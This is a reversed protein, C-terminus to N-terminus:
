GGAEVALIFPTMQAFLSKTFTRGSLVGTAQSIVLGPGIRFDGNQDTSTFFVKGNDIQIVEKSQNPDARGVQPLSGYNTGAGVYEFTYSLASMYSRQYFNLSAGDPFLLPNRVQDELSIIHYTGARSFYSLGSTVMNYNSGKTLDLILRDIIIGIDRKCKYQQSTTMTYVNQNISYQFVEAIIFDKNVTLQTVANSAQPPPAGTKRTVPAVEVGNTLINILEDFRDNVFPIAAAGTPYDKNQIVTNGSSAIITGVGIVSAVVSAMYTIAGIEASQHNNGPLLSSGVEVPNEAVVSSLVNYYANGTFLLTFFNPNNIEGGGSTLGINLTISKFNIDTVVTGTAAYPVGVSDVYSGFQDRVWVTQGIAIGETEIDTIKISGTTLTALNPIATLFGPLGQDNVYDVEAFTGAGTTDVLIKKPPIVEMVLGIHPRYASDPIFALMQANQPWYGNPYYQGNTTQNGSQALTPYAPNQVTGQFELKGKGKAVLCYDGFNANSNTISAIGGNDVEVATSCFITFVSVLQAYGNNVIHIGRGGQNVQTFADYVFSNVPSRDSVVNGDVLSGGMAGTPDPMRQSWDKAEQSTFEAGLKPFVSTQGFYLTANSAPGVTPKDLGITFNNAIQVISTIKPALKVDNNSIGTAAFLGSGVYQQPAVSPGNEIINAIIDFTRTVGEIAFQGGDFYTNIIQKTGNGPSPTVAINQIINLSIAKARNIADITQPIEGDVYNRAGVWYNLGCEIAKTTGGLILDQTVADVIYGTDRKCKSRDYDFAFFQNVYAITEAQIFKRNAEIIKAAVVANTSTTRVISIPTKAGAVSPGNEIINTIVDIKGTAASITPINTTILESDFVQEETKQYPTVPLGKVINPIISRIRNYAAITGTTQGYIASSGSNYGYYYVGAQISQRNGGYLLDFSVSDVIYGVDRFCKTKDYLFGSTKQNEVWSLVEQQMYVKNAQLINFAQKVDINYSADVDNPVIKDTVGSVGNTLIDLVVDFKSAIADSEALTASPLSTIQTGTSYRPNSTDNIVLKRALSKAYAISNTTTTIENGIQGTYNNQNWYQLGTFTSQSTSDFLLDQVISDVILGSDRYCKDQNYTFQRFFQNNVRAVVEEKIFERNAQLINYAKEKNADTSKELGIPVKNYLLSSPGNQILSIIDGIYNSLDIGELGSASPLSVNQSVKTQAPVIEINQVLNNILNSLTNYAYVTQPIEGRIASAAGDFSYYYVGSQIAQRNGGHLLDFSVSDIMYGVDRRCLETNYQFGLTKNQEVFAIAEAQIYSKNAQLLNYANVTSVVTSPTGNNPIIRDTVGITGNIIIDLILNFESAVVSAEVESGQTYTTDQIEAFQYRVGTTINQVVEKALDRVFKIANTTTSLENAIQGTYESQNWYQLGTFVSQSHDETPYLMDLGISDVILGLDRKCKETSYNISSYKSDIYATAENQIFTRNSQLLVEASVAYKDPGSSPYSTPAVDPGNVIIDTVININNTFGQSALSGGSLNKNFVQPATVAGYTTASTNTIIKQTLTNIYNIAAVTQQEQGAILSIVGNYYAKGSEISKENGGFTTDYSLNELIIGVDRYCFAQSYSFNYWISNQDANTINNNIWNIVQQQVFPKNALILTRADFFGLHQPGSNISDGISITGTSLTITISSANANWSGVGVATPIQVTQNPIFMTGDKLWPGSQNTCNQIYPSHFIDIKDSNFNPPFATAYAGRNFGNANEIPLLGSRGNSMQLQAIYCGSQVHFLDQTKNVPEIFTTRLDSGIISTNPLMQIPNNEYYRGASVKIATGPRYLPSKVAGSITRCARTEDMAAGDNTDDGDMTVYLVNTVVPATGLPGNKSNVRIQGNIELLGANPSITIPGNTNKIENSYLKNFWGEAWSSGDQGIKYNNDLSPIIDSAVEATIKLRDTPVNGLGIDGDATINGTAHLDGFVTTNSQLNIDNSGSPSINVPGVTTSITNTSIFIKGITGIGTTGSQGPTEVIRLVDGNITGKVDLSYLPADKRIGVRTNTVDLYLVPEETSDVNYFALPINDRFLNQALLPGSIRGIAM